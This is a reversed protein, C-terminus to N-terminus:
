HLETQALKMKLSQNEQELNSIEISNFILWSIIGILALFVGIPFFTKVSIKTSKQSSDLEEHKLNVSVTGNSFTAAM